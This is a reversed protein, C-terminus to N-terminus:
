SSVQGLGALGVFAVWQHLAVRDMDLHLGGPNKCYYWWLLSAAQVVASLVPTIRLVCSLQADPAKQLWAARM